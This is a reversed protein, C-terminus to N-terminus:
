QNEVAVTLRDLFAEVSEEADKDFRFRGVLEEVLPSMRTNAHPRAYLRRLARLLRLVRPDDDPLKTFWRRFAEIGAASIANRRDDAFEVSKEDAARRWRSSGPWGVRALEEAPRALLDM